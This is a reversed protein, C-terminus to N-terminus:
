RVLPQEDANCHLNLYASPETVSCARCHVANGGKVWDGGSRSSQMQEIRAGMQALLLTVILFCCLVLVGATSICLPASVRLSDLDPPTVGKSLARLGAPTLGATAKGALFAQMNFLMVIRKNTRTTYSLAACHAPFEAPHTSTVQQLQTSYKSRPNAANM